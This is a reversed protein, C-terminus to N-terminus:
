VDEEDLLPVLACRCNPHLPPHRIDFGRAGAPIKMSGVDAIVLSDGASFFADGTEIRKGNMEACFPCRLDDEATLWEVVAVGEAGYRQMAGENYAWMSGTHALMQARAETQALGESLLQAAIQTPTMGQQKEEDYFEFARTFINELRTASTQAVSNATSAIWKNIAPFDAKVLFNEPARGIEVGGVEAKGAATKSTPKEVPHKVDAGANGWAHAVMAYIQQRYVTVLSTAWSNQLERTIKLRGGMKAVAAIKRVHSALEAAIARRLRPYNADAFAARMNSIATMRARRQAKGIPSM